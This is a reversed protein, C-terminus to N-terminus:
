QSSLFISFNNQCRIKGTTWRWGDGKYLGIWIKRAVPLSRTTINRIIEHTEATDITVLRGPGPNRLSRCRERAAHWTVKTENLYFCRNSTEHYYYYSSSTGLCSAKSASVLIINLFIIIIIIEDIIFFLYIYICVCVCVCM